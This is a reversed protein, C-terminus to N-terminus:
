RLERARTGARSRKGLLYERVWPHFCRELEQVPAIAVIRKDALAAV